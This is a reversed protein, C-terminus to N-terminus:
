GKAYVTSRWRLMYSCHVKPDKAREMAGETIIGAKRARVFAGGWARENKPKPLGGAYSFARVEEATLTAHQRAFLDIYGFAVESWLPTANDATDQARRIGEDRLQVGTHKMPQAAQTITPELAVTAFLDPTTNM